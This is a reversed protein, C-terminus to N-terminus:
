EIPKEVDNGWEKWSGDFVAGGTFGAMRMALLGYSASVGGNCYIGVGDGDATIGMDAFKLRLQEVPLMTNDARILDNRPLNKATPIHGFRKARSAKGEYEAPTRVDILPMTGNNIGAQVQEITLRLANNPKPTFLKPAILPLEATIPRNEATWKQWGGDMVVVREHGYYNL